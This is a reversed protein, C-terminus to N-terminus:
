LDLGRWPAKGSAWLDELGQKDRITDMCQWFGPHQYAMLQGAQAIRELPERELLTADGEIFDFIRPEFM